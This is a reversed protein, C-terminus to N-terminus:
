WSGNVYNEWYPELGFLKLVCKCRSSFRTGVGKKIPVKEAQSSCTSIIKRLATTANTANFPKAHKKNPTTAEEKSAVIEVSSSLKAVQSLESTELLNGYRKMKLLDGFFEMPISIPRRKV